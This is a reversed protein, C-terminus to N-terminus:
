QLDFRLLVTEPSTIMGVMLFIQLYDSYSWELLSSMVNAASKKGNADVYTPEDFYVTKDVNGLIM